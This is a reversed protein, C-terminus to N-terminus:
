SVEEAGPFAQKLREHPDIADGPPADVLQTLDVHEEDPQVQAARAPPTDGTEPKVILRVPIPRGFHTALATEVEDRRSECDQLLFRNEVTLVVASDVAVVEVSRFAAATRHKVHGLVGDWALRVEGASPLM